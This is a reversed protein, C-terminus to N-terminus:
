SVEDCQPFIDSLTLKEPMDWKKLGWSSAMWAARDMPNKLCSCQLPNGYGVGPSRGLGPILGLDGANCTSKKGNSGGTSLYLVSYIKCELYPAFLIHCIRHRHTHSTSLCFNVKLFGTEIKSESNSISM